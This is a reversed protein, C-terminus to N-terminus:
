YWTIFHQQIGSPPEITDNITGCGCSGVFVKMGNIPGVQRVIHDFPCYGIAQTIIDEPNPDAPEMQSGPFDSQSDIVEADEAPRTTLM